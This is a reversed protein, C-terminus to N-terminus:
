LVAFCAMTPLPFTKSLVIAPHSFPTDDGMEAAIAMSCFFRHLLVHSLWKTDMDTEADYILLAFFRPDYGRPMPDHDKFEQKRAQAESACLLGTDAAHRWLLAKQADLQRRWYIKDAEEEANELIPSPCNSSNDGSSTDNHATFTYSEVGGAEKLEHVYNKYAQQWLV